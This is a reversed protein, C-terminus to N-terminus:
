CIFLTDKQRLM